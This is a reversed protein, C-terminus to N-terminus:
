IEILKDLLPGIAESDGTSRVYRALASALGGNGAAFRARAPVRESELRALWELHEAQEAIAGEIWRRAAAPDAWILEDAIAPGEIALQEAGLEWPLVRLADGDVREVAMASRLEEIAANVVRDLRPSSSQWIPADNSEARVVPALTGAFWASLEEDTREARTGVSCAVRLVRTEGPEMTERLVIRYRSGDLRAEIPDAQADSWGVVWGPAISAQDRPFGLIRNGERVLFWHPAAVETRDLGYPQWIGASSGDIGRPQPAYSDGTAFPGPMRTSAPKENAATPEGAAGGGELIVDHTRPRDTPNRLEITVAITGHGLLEVRRTETVRGGDPCSASSGATSDAPDHSTSAHSEREAAAPANPRQPTFVMEDPIEGLQLSVSRLLLKREPAWAGRAGARVDVSRDDAAIPDGSAASFFQEGLDFTGFRFRSRQAVVGWLPGSGVLRTSPSRSEGSAADVFRLNPDDSELSFRLSAGAQREHPELRVLAVRDEAECSELVLRRRRDGCAIVLTENGALEARYRVRLVAEVEPAIPPLRYTVQDIPRTLLWGDSCSGAGLTEGPPAIVLWEVPRISRPCNESM